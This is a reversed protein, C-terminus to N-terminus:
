SYRPASLPQGRGADTWGLRALAAGLRDIGTFHHGRMGTAEAGRVNEARDDVFLIRDPPLRLARGCWRYAEALPKVQGTRCSFAIVEFHRLWQHEAEHHVALEAPINSLLGLRRGAASLEGVMAVMEDDVAHWSAVDAEILAGVQRDDFRTHLTAAVESWYAPGTLEGSDYRPRVAWYAEWFAPGPVEATRVLREKGTPTQARALVGFLDFLVAEIM